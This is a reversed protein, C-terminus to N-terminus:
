QGVCTHMYACVIGISIGVSICLIRVCMCGSNCMSVHQRGERLQCCFLDLVREEM